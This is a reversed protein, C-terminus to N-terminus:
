PTLTVSHTAFRLQFGDPAIGTREYNLLQQVSNPSVVVQLSVDVPAGRQIDWASSNWGSLTNLVPTTYQNNGGLWGASMWIRWSRQQASRGVLTFVYGRVPSESYTGWQATFTLPETPTFDFSPSEFLPPLTISLAPPLSSLGRVEGRGVDTVVEIRFSEGAQLIGAPFIPYRLPTNPISLALLSSRGSSQLFLRSNVNEGSAGPVSLTGASVDFVRVVASDQQAFDITLGSTNNSFNRNRQLWVKNPEGTTGLRVGILDYFGPTLSLTFSGGNTAVTASGSGASVLAAEGSNLGQVTGSINVPSAPTQPCSAAFATAEATTLHVINVQPKDSECVWAVSYRGDAARVNFNYNPGSGSLRQWQGTKGDQFAVFAAGTITATIATGTGGGGNGGGGGGGCGAILMLLLSVVGLFAVFETRKMAEM